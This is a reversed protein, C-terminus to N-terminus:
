RADVVRGRLREGAGEHAGLVGAECQREAVEGAPEGAREAEHGDDVVQPLRGTPRAAGLCLLAAIVPSSSAWARVEPPEAHITKETAPASGSSHAKARLM